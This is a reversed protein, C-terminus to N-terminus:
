NGREENTAGSALSTTRYLVPLEPAKAISVQVGPPAESVWGTGIIPLAIIIKGRQPLQKQIYIHGKIYFMMSKYEKSYVPYYGDM